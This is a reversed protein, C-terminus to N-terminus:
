LHVDFPTVLLLLQYESPIIVNWHRVYVQLPQAIKTAWTGACILVLYGVHVIDSSLSCIIAIQYNQVHAHTGPHSM